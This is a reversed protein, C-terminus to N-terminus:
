GATSNPAASDLCRKLRLAMERRQVVPGMGGIEHGDLGGRSLPEWQRRLQTGHGEFFTLRGAYPQPVYAQAALDNRVSVEVWRYFFPPLGDMSRNSLDHDIVGHAGIAAYEQRLARLRHDVLREVDGGDGVENFGVDYPHCARIDPIMTEVLGLFAVEGGEVLLRQAMEYAVLGGMCNGALLYPGSPTVQKLEQLYRAAMASVTADPQQCGDRGVSRFGYVPRGLPVKGALAHLFAIDGSGGHVFFLPAGDGSPSVRVITGRPVPRWQERIARALLDITPNAVFTEVSVEVGLQEYIASLLALLLLSHGGLDFFDDDRGIDAHGLVSQWAELLALELYSAPGRLGSRGSEGVPTPLARRDIKGNATLPLADILTICTPVMYRPLQRAVFERLQKPDVGASRPVVYGVLEQPSPNGPRGPGEWGSDVSDVAATVVHERPEHLDVVATDVGPHRCLAAEIESLEVRIGRIKVQRDSRGLFQLNGDPLYRALDGSRFLRSGPFSSFPDPVFRTATLGPQNLYGRGVGKGGICLEGPVGIPVPEGDEMVYVSVNGVPRGIISPSGRGAIGAVRDGVEASRMASERTIMLGTAYTTTESPGFFNYIRKVNSSQFIRRPLSDALNEGALNVTEVSSPIVIRRLLEAMVSPVTSLLTVPTEEAMATLGLASEALVATGGWSLPAFLEFLTCDFVPTTTALV